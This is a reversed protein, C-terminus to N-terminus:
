LVSGDETLPVTFLVAGRQEGEGDGRYSVTAIIRLTGESEVAAPYHCFVSDPIGSEGAEYLLIEEDFRMTNKESLYLVLKSRKFMEERNTGNVVNAVIYCRGDSLNGCYMKTSIIPLDFTYAESWSNGYDESLYLLPANRQDNRAIMYIVDGALMATMEPHVLKTGDWLNGNEAIKVLRWEADVLGSDSILVAPTNPFGDLEGIRGPLMLSGNPLLLPATNLKFPIPRSWLFVFRDSQPDLVYLDLSHIHDPAVMQNMLMYLKDECVAYVPPCYLIAGSKDAAITEIKTWTKGGDYSRKGCIPTYGHLEIEPCNYWSAYLVGKFEVIAAEHLFLGDRTNPEYVINKEIIPYSRRQPKGDTLHIAPLRSVFRLDAATQFVQYGKEDKGMRFATPTIGFFEKFKESFYSANDFGCLSAIEVIRRDSELMLHAAKELKLEMRYHNVSCGMRHKFFHCLYYHDIYFRRALEEVTFSDSVHKELYSVIEGFLLAERKVIEEKGERILEVIARLLSPDACGTKQFANIKEELMSVNMSSRLLCDVEFYHFVDSIIRDRASHEMFYLAIEESTQKKM